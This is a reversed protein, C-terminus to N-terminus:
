HWKWWSDYSFGLEWVTSVNLHVHKSTVQKM